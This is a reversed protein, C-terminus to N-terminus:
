GSSPARPRTASAALLALPDPQAAAPRHRRRRDQRQRAKRLRHQRRLGPRAPRWRRPAGAGGGGRHAPRGRPDLARAHRAAGSRKSSPSATVAGPTLTVTMPRGGFIRAHSRSQLRHPLRARGSPRRGLGRPRRAAGARDARLRRPGLARAAERTTGALAEEPTLRFLTCAMNMALLISTMPSSGPNCDTAVRWRCATSACSRAVPPAQTERLTYFAGPLIAAVTGAAAM